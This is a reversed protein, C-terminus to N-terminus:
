WIGALVRQSLNSTPLLSREHLRCVVYMGSNSVFVCEGDGLVYLAAGRSTSAGGQRSSMMSREMEAQVVAAAALISDVYKDHCLQHGNAGDGVCPWGCVEQAGVEEFATERALEQLKVEVNAAKAEDDSLM